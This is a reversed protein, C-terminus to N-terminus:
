AIKAKQKRGAENTLICIKEAIKEIPEVYNAAGIEIAERPMGFVVCTKEDQAITLVSKKKLELMGQAGDKGMGTLLVAITHCFINKEVSQFLYDVSPKFRNVPEDNNIEVFRKDNKVIVKMQKGGPAILVRNMKIEDGDEAEKVEFKCLDNMRNAFARSFVAPIHQVILIPPIQNPMGTLVVRLAETGGTSSGILVLSNTNCAVDSKLVKINEVSPGSVKRSLAAVKVKELIMPILAELDAMEPKQIYDVAGHELAELVLPGEAMSISSIMVCPIKYKPAIKKLLTVGDM